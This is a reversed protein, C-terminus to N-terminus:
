QSKRKNRQRVRFKFEDWGWMILVLMIALPWFIVALFRSVSEDESTIGAMLFGGFIWMVVLLFDSLM